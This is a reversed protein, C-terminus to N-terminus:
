LCRQHARLSSMRQCHSIPMRITEKTSRSFCEASTAYPASPRRESCQKGVASALHECGRPIDTASLIGRRSVIARAVSLGKVGAAMPANSQYPPLHDPVSTLISQSCRKITFSDSTM